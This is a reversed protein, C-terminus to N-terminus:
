YSCFFSGLESPKEVNWIASEIEEKILLLPVPEAFSSAGSSVTQSYLVELAHEADREPVFAVSRGENAVYLPDSPSFSCRSQFM